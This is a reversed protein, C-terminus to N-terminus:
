LKQWILKANLYGEQRDLSVQIDMWAQSRADLDM